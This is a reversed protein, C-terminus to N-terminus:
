DTNELFRGYILWSVPTMTVMLSCSYDSFSYKILCPTLRYRVSNELSSVEGILNYLGLMSECIDSRVHKHFGQIKKAIFRQFKNIEACNNM